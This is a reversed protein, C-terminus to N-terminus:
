VYRKFIHPLQELIDTAIMSYSTWKEAALEGALAHFYVGLLSAKLREKTQALFGAIIGTLIDGSGATAMGPDGHPCVYPTEGGHIIYTPAGKLVLTVNREKAFDCSRQLLESFPLEKETIHLIKKM